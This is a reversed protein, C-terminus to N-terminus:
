LKQHKSELYKPWTVFVSNFPFNTRLIIRKDVAFKLINIFFFFSKKRITFIIKLITYPFKNGTSVLGDIYRLGHMKQRAKNNKM